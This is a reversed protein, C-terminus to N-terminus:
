AVEYLKEKRNNIIEFASELNEKELVLEEEKNKMRDTFALDKTIRREHYVELKSKVQELRKVIGAKVTNINGSM